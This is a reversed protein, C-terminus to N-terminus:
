FTRREWAGGCEKHLPYIHLQNACQDKKRQHRTDCEALEGYVLFEGVELCDGSQVRFTVCGVLPLPIDEPKIEQICHWPEILHYGSLIIEIEVFYHRFVNGTQVICVISIKQRRIEERCQV